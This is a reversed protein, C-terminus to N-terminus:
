NLMCTVVSLQIIIIGTGTKETPSSPILGGEVDSQASIEDTDSFAFIIFVSPAVKSSVM